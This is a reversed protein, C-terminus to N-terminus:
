IQDSLEACVALLEDLIQERKAKTIRSEPASVSIAALARGDRGLIPAAFSIAGPRFSSVAYGAKRITKLEEMLVEVGVRRQEKIRERTRRVIARADPEFALIAKGGAALPAPARSGVRSSFRIPRPSIIKDLFLVDDGSLMLLSVTEQTTEHLRQLYAATARRIPHQVILGTGLEWLRLTAGYHGTSADQQVYGLGILTGLIRHVTSKQLTLTAAIASLRIPGDQLALLELVAFTRSVVSDSQSADAM